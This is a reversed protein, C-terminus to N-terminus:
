TFYILFQAAACDSSNESMLIEQLQENFLMNEIPLDNQNNVTTTNSQIFEAIVNCKKLVSKEAISNSLFGITVCVGLSVFIAYSARSWRRFRLKFENNQSKINKM